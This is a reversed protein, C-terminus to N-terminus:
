KSAAIKYAKRYLAYAGKFDGAAKAANAENLFLQAVGISGGAALINALTETVISKTLDLHGGKPTPTLYWAVPTASDAEALDAEIQTRLILDKLENKNASANNLITTTNSNDNNIILERNSNDNTIINGTNTNDNNIILSRNSNDNTIINATNTNDNAVSAELDGHIHALRQYNADIVNGTVTDDCFHIGAYIAHAIVYAITFPLCGVSLSAGLAVQDCLDQAIDRAAEAAFFVIDVVLIVEVPIREPGYITNDPDVPDWGDPPVFDDPPEPPLPIHCFGTAVPFGASSIGVEGAKTRKSESPMGRRKELTAKFKSVSKRGANLKERILTPNLSKRLVTLREYPLQAFQAMAGDLSGLDVDGSLEALDRLITTLDLLASRMQELEEQSYNEQDTTHRAAIAQRVEARLAAESERVMARPTAVRKPSNAPRAAFAVNAFLMSMVLTAVTVLNRRAKM